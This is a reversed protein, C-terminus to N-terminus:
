GCWPGGDGRRGFPRERRPGGTRLRGAGPSRAPGTLSRAARADRRVGPGAPRRGRCGARQVEGDRPGGRGDGGRGRRLRSGGGHAAATRHAPGHVRGGADRRHARGGRHPGADARAAAVAGRDGDVLPLYLTFTSGAGVESECRIEGGLLQAIERSISLGLGTGGYKRSTTGDAQQFAEFILHQKDRPVGVGTDRVAFAVIAGARALSESATDIAPARYARLEVVGRDTFKFANSLLNKLVQHLRTADTRVTRPLTQDLQLRFELGRADAVHRFSRDVEELFQHLMVRSPEVTVTGSEIKTLDLIDNILTLLDMGASYITKAFQQQRSSLNGEPNETLLNALILLSNLPTRLEHSMNALFESKYRSTLSLQAAKEELDRKAHEVERNKREVEANQQELLRAKEELVENTQRLEEQQQQLEQALSQSQMLLRETRM